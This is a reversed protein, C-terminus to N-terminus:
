HDEGVGLVRPALNEAHAALRVHRWGEHEELALRRRSAAEPAGLRAGEVAGRIAVDVQIQREKALQVLPETRWTVERLGVDHRMFDPM